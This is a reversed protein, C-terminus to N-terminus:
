FPRKRGEGKGWGAEEASEERPKRQSPVQFAGDSLFATLNSFLRRFCWTVVGLGATRM